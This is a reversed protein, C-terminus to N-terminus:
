YSEQSEKEFNEDLVDLVDNVWEKKIGNSPLGNVWNVRGDILQVLHGRDKAWAVFEPSFEHKSLRLSYQEKV